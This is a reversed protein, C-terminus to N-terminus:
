SAWAVLPLGKLYVANLRSCMEMFESSPDAFVEEFMRKAQDRRLKLEHLPRRDLCAQLFVGLIKVALIGTKESKTLRKNLPVDKVDKVFDEMELSRRARTDSYQCAEDCFHLAGASASQGYPLIDSVMTSYKDSCKQECYGCFMM